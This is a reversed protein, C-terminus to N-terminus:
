MQWCWCDAHWMSFITEWCFGVFAPASVFDQVTLSLISYV